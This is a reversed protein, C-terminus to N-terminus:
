MDEKCHIGSSYMESLSEKWSSDSDIFAHEYVFYAGLNIPQEFGVKCTCEPYKSCGLFKSYGRRVILPSNCVPCEIDTKFGEPNKLIEIAELYKVKTYGRM